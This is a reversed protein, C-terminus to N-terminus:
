RFGPAIEAAFRDLDPRLEDLPRFMTPVFLTDAGGAKVEALKDRIQQPSGALCTARAEEPSRGIRKAITDALREVEDKRETFMVAMNLSRHLRKPDRGIAACHQDLIAGKRALVKPGGWVNWHDAHK